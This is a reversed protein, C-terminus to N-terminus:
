EEPTLGDIFKVLNDLAESNLKASGSLLSRYREDKHLLELYESLDESSDEPNRERTLGAVYNMDLGYLECLRALTDVDVRTRGTEFSSVKQTTTGLYKAVDEQNMGKKIRAARLRAAIEEKSMIKVESIEEVIIYLM